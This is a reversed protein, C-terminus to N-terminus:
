NEIRVRKFPKKDAKVNMIQGNERNRKAFHGSRTRFQSRKMQALRVVEKKRWSIM